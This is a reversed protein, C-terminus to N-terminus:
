NNKLVDIEAKLEQIAKVLVTTIRAYSLSKLGDKNESVLEPILKEVEQAIFGIENKDLGIKNYSIPNLKDVIELQSELPKINEKLSIDSNETLTGAVTVNTANGGIGFTMAVVGDSYIVPYEDNTGFYGGIKIEGSNPLLQMGARATGGAGGIVLGRWSANDSSNVIVNKSSSSSVTMNGAFTADNNAITLALSGGTSFGITDNSIHYMGTHPDSAFKFGPAGASGYGAAVSTAAEFINPVYVSGDDNITLRNTWTGSERSQTILQGSSVYMRYTNDTTGDLAGFYVQGGSCFLNDSFKGVVSNVTGSFTGNGTVTVGASAINLTTGGSIGLNIGTANYSTILVPRGADFEIRHNAGDWQGINIQDTNNTIKLRNYISSIGATTTVAGAFTAAGAYLALSGTGISSGLTLAGDQLHFVSANNAANSILLNGSGNCSLNRYNSSNKLRLTGGDVYVSGGFTGTSAVNLTGAAGTSTNIAISNAVVVDRPRSGATSGIDYTGDTAFLINGAFTANQSTDLTLATTSNTRLIMSNSGITSLYTEDGGDLEMRFHAGGDAQALDLAANAYSVIVKGAFTANTDLTLRTTGGTAFILTDNSDEEIYTHGGAGDFRLKETANITLNSFAGNGGTVTGGFTTNGSVDIAVKEVANIGITMKSTNQEYRIYGAKSATSSGTGDAFYISGYDGVNAGSYITIGVDGSGGGVILNDADPNFDGPTTGNLGVSGAFTASLDNDFYLVNTDITDDAANSSRLAFRGYAGQEGQWAYARSGSQGSTHVWKISRVSNNFTIDGTMTGGALPMKAAISNTVTTSFNADDGLAAALENLTDLTSPASAVIGAVETDVYAKVSQQSPLKVASNSAMNDEDVLANTIRADARANTYYLNSSGESVTDTDGQTYTLVGTSSNYSLQTSNESIAARARADTYYLNSGEGIHATTIGHSAHLNGQVIIGDSILKVKTLAM